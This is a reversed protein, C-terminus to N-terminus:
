KIKQRTGSLTEWIMGGYFMAILYLVTMVLLHWITVQDSGFAAVVSVALFAGGVWRSAPKTIRELGVVMDVENASRGGAAGLGMVGGGQENKDETIAVLILLAIALIVQLIIVFTHMIIKLYGRLNYALQSTADLHFLHILLGFVPTLLASFTSRVGAM